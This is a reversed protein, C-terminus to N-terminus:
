RGCDLAGTTSAGRSSSASQMLVTCRRRRDSCRISPLGSGIRGRARPLGSGEPEVVLHHDPPAVYIHSAAIGEGNTANTAPLPGARSLIEHLVGPSQPATHLVVCIPAPFDAPLASVIARLADIGGASAGIVVIQNAQAMFRRM